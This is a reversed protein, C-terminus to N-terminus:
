YLSCLDKKLCIKFVERIKIVGNQCDLDFKFLSKDININQLHAMTAM